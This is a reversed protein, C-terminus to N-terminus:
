SFVQRHPAADFATSSTHQLAARGFSARGKRKGPAYYASLLVVQSLLTTHTIRRNDPMLNPDESCYLVHVHDHAFSLCFLKTGWLKWELGRLTRTYKRPGVIDVPCHNLFLGRLPTLLVNGLISRDRINRRWRNLVPASHKVAHRMQRQASLNLRIAPKCHEPIFHQFHLRFADVTNFQGCSFDNESFYVKGALNNPVM